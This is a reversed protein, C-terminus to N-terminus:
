FIFRVNLAGDGFLTAGGYFDMFPKLDIGINVPANRFKYDLGIIGDIGVVTSNNDYYVVRKKNHFYYGNERFFGVHGGIGYFWNLGAAGRIPVFKEYLGTVLTANHGVSLIGELATKSDTFHRITLGNTQGGVRFGIATKYKQANTAFSIISFLFIILTHTQIKRM